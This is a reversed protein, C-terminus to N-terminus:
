VLADAVASLVESIPERVIASALHDFPTPEANIIALKGPVQALGAVPWVQLSTGIAVLLDARGAAEWSADLVDRDLPEGFSVTTTKLVSGCSECAPDPDPRALVQPTPWRGPCGTCIVEWMSGHLELVETSGARQHLGDINQTMLSAVRGDRQLAALALHGANPRATLSPDERRHAWAARRVASDALYEDISFMAAAAPDRTWLGDPGRFDSIGSDTSIGAGTLVAVRGSQSWLQTVQEVDRM